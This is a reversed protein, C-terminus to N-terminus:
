KETSYKKNSLSMTTVSFAAVFIFIVVSYAAALGYSKTNYALNYVFTILLDTAGPSGLKSGFPGGSTLLYVGFNNFQMILGMILTPLMARFILPLTILFFMKTRGAGELTAAEYYDHPISKLYGSALVMYYPTGMWSVVFLVSLRALWANELWPIKGAGFFSLFANLAGNNTDLIGKWTLLTIVSPVVWPLIFILKYMKAVTINRRDLVTGLFSGFIFTIVQVGVAFCITWLFMSAFGRLGEVFIEKYNYGGIFVYDVLNLSSYNTMSLYINHVIPFLYFIGILGLLPLLAAYAVVTLRVNVKHATNGLLKRKRIYKLVVIAIIVGILCALLLYAWWPVEVEEVQVNMKQVDSLIAAALSDLMEQADVPTGDLNGYFIAQFAKDTYNYWIDGEPINPMPEVNECIRAMVSYLPDDAIYSSRRVALNVPFRSGSKEDFNNGGEILKQQNEDLCLYELFAQAEEPYRSHANIVFGNVTAYPASATGDDNNPLPAIAYNIGKRDYYSNQWFGNILMAIKQDGFAASVDNDVDNRGPLMLGQAQLEKMKDVFQLTGENNLGVDYPNYNGDEDTGYYYGGYNRIIPYTFYMNKANILTGKMTRGLVNTADFSSVLEFYEEWTINELQEATIYDTNYIIGYTEISYGIGYQKGAIAFSTFAAEDFANKTDGKFDLDLLFGNVALDGIDAHQMMVIDPRDGVTANNVLDKPADFLSRRDVVEVQVGSQATWEAAITRIVNNERALESGWIRVKKIEAAKAININTPSASLSFVFPLVALAAIIVAAFKKIKNVAMIKMM